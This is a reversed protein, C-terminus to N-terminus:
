ISMILWFFKNFPYMAIYFFGDFFPTNILLILILFGWRELLAFKEAAGAPLLQMLVHAGDLPPIPILNFVILIVNIQFMIQLLIFLARLNIGIILLIKLLLLSALAAIFNSTVGALSM